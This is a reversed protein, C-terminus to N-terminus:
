EGVVLKPEIAPGVAFVHWFGEEENLLLTIFAAVNVTQDTIVQFSERVNAFLLIYAVNAYGDPYRARSAMGMDPISEVLAKAETFDGWAPLTRPVVLHNLGNRYEDLDKLYSIFMAAAVNPNMLDPGIADDVANGLAAEENSIIRRNLEAWPDDAM